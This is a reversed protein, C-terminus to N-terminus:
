VVQPLAISHHRSLLVGHIPQQILNPLQHNQIFTFQIVALLM